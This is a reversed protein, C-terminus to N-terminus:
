KRNMESSNKEKKLASNILYCIMLNSILLIYFWIKPKLNGDIYSSAMSQFYKTCSLIITVISLFVLLIELYRMRRIKKTKNRMSIVQLVLAAIIFVVSMFGTPIEPGIISAYKYSGLFETDGSYSNLYASQYIDFWNFFHLLVSIIYFIIILNKSILNSQRM